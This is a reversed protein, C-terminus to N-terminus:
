SGTRPVPQPLLAARPSRHRPTPHHKGSRKALGSGLLPCRTLPCSARAHPPLRSAWPDPMRTELSCGQVGPERLPWLPEARIQPTLSTAPDRLGPGADELSPLLGSEGPPTVRLSPLQPQALPVTFPPDGRCFARHKSRPPTCCAWGLQRAHTAWRGQLAPISRIFPAEHNTDFRHTTLARSFPQGPRSQTNKLFCTPKEGTVASRQVIGACLLPRPRPTCRPWKPPSQKDRQLNEM